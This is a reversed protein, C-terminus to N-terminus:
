FQIVVRKDFDPAMWEERGAQRAINVWAKCVMPSM